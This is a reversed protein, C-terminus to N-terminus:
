KLEYISEIDSLIKETTAGLKLNINENKMSAIFMNMDHKVSTTLAVKTSPSLLQYLRFFDNRHKRIKKSDINEGSKKRQTLDLWAKAKFPLIFEVELITLGNVIRNGQTIFSYYDDDLLIASLSSVDDDIPIPIISSNQQILLQDPARSFLELMYPFRDNKLESFRYFQKKGTSKQQHKYEGYKVFTWFHNVFEPSLAEACLVIDFDKTARFDLGSEEMVLHCAVGGIIVYNKQFNIFHEKFTDIGNIM